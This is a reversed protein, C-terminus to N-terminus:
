YLPHPNPRNTELFSAQLWLFVAMHFIYIYRTGAFGTHGIVVLLIAIGKLIDIKCNRKM